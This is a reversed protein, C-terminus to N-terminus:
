PAFRGEFYMGPDQSMIQQQKQRTMRRMLFNNVQTANSLDVVEHRGFPMNTGTYVSANYTSQLPLNVAKFNKTTNNWNKAEAFMNVFGNTFEQPTITGAQVAALGADILVDPNVATAGGSVQTYLVTQGFKSGKVSPLESLTKLDPGRYINKGYPDKMVDAAMVKLQKPVLENVANVVGAETPKGGAATTTTIGKQWVQALFEKTEQMGNNLPSNNKMVTLASQGVTSGGVVKNGTAAAIMGSSWNEEFDKKATQTGSKLYTKLQEPTVPPFGQIGRGINYIRTNEAWGAEDEKMDALKQAREAARLSAEKQALALHGASIALQQQQVQISNMQVARQLTRDNNSMLLKVSDMDYSLNRQQLEMSQIKAGIAQADMAAAISDRTVSEAISKQANVSSVVTANIQQMANLATNAQIAIANHKAVDQGVTLQNAFYQIPNDFFGVSEKQEIQKQVAQAQNFKDWFQQGLQALAFNQSDPNAGLSTAIVRGAEQAALEGELKQQQAIREKEAKEVAAAIIQTGLQAGQQNLGVAQNTLSTDQQQALGFADMIGAM